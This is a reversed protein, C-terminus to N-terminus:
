TNHPAWVSQLFSWTLTRMDVGYRAADDDGAPYHHALATVTMLEVRVNGDCGTAELRSAAGADVTTSGTCGDAEFIRAVSAAAPPFGGADLGSSGTGDVPILADRDGHVHLLNVDTAPACPATVLDGAVIVATRFLDPRECLLRYSMLAGNSFGTVAIRGPDISVRREVHQVVDVLFGVDDVRQRVAYGCCTGAAWSHGLGSPYVVVADNDAARGDLGSAREFRAASWNLPHLAVLLAHRTHRLRAPVFLRYDRTRGDYTMSVLHVSGGARPTSVVARVSEEGASAFWAAPAM